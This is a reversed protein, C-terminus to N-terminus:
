KNIVKGDMTRYIFSVKKEQNIIEIAKKESINYIQMIDKIKKKDLDNSM